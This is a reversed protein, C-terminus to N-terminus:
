TLVRCARLLDISPHRIRGDRLSLVVGSFSKRASPRDPSCTPRTHKHILRTKFRDTPGISDLGMGPGVNSCSIKKQSIEFVHVYQTHVIRNDAAALIYNIVEHIVSLERTRAWVWTETRILRTSHIRLVCLMHALCAHTRALRAPTRYMRRGAGAWAVGDVSRRRFVVCETSPRPLENTRQDPVDTRGRIRYPLAGAARTSSVFRCRGVVSNATLTSSLFSRFSARRVLNPPM